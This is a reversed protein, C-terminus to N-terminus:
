SLNIRSDFTKYVPIPNTALVQMLCLTDLRDAGHNRGM